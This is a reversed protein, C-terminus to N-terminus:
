QLKALLTLAHKDFRSVAFWKKGLDKISAGFHYVVTNDIILFRDHAFQFEKVIVPLYQENYKNIDQSLASSISQTYLTVGVGRRRKSFLMIVTDDLYNDILIIDSKASRIIDSVFKRADFVEGEFFLKQDPIRDTSSLADFIREFKKESELKLELQKEELSDLRTLLQENFRITRRMSVFASMIRISMHIAIDSKLIASLMAVGQETFVFPQNRRGGRKNSIVIQSILNSYEYKTLQFCFIGPFRGINRKVAQNLRMTSTEYLIALDSDLMVQVGHVTYIKNVIGPEVFTSLRKNNKM